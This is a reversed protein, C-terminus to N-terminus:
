FSLLFVLLCFSVLFVSIGKICKTCRWKHELSCWVGDVSKLLSKFLAVGMKGPYHKQTRRRVSTLVSWITVPHAKGICKLPGSFFTGEVKQRSVQHVVLIEERNYVRM